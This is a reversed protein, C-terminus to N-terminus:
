TTTPRDSTSRAAVLGGACGVAMGGVVLLIGMTPPIFRVAGVGLVRAATEGYWSEGVAFGVSLIVLAAVAGIGGQLVGECVFPGRVYTLPAGVLQMIEIEDRRAFCALRVVNAVTLGAAVILVLAVALGVGRLLAVASTLREISTQDFRVEEVGNVGQLMLALDEVEAADGIDPELRAEFSAPFPNSAVQEIVGRLGSFDRRFRSLAQAKSVFEFDGVVESELLIRELEARAEPTVDDRLFVSMEAAAAWQALLREVNWTVLLLAGLVVLATAITAV